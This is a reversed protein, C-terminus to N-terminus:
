VRWSNILLDGEKGAYLQKEAGKFYFNWFLKRDIEWKFNCNSDINQALECNLVSFAFPQLFGKWKANYHRWAHL